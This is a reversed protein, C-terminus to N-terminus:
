WTGSFAVMTQGPGPLVSATVSQNRIYLVTGAGLGALGLGTAAWSAPYLWQLTKFEGLTVTPRAEDPHGPQQRQLRDYTSYSVALGATGAVLAMGGAVWCAIAPAQSPRSESKEVSTVAPSVAAINSSSGTSPRPQPTPEVAPSAKALPVDKLILEPVEVSATAGPGVRVLGTWDRCGPATATVTLDGADVPVSIPTPGLDMNRFTGVTVKLGPTSVASTIMLWSLKSKLASARSVAAEERVTEHTRKAWAAAENFSLYAKVRYGTKEYCDALNLLTGLGPDLKHSSEFLPCAEAFRNAKMLERAQNFLKDAETPGAPAALLSIMLTVAAISM